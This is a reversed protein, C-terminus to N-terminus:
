IEEIAVWEPLGLDEILYNLIQIATNLGQHEGNCYSSREAMYHKRVGTSENKLKNYNIIDERIYKSSLLLYDRMQTLEETTAAM